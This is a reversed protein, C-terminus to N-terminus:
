RVLGTLKTEPRIDPSKKIYEPYKAGPILPGQPATLSERTVGAPMLCCWDKTSEDQMCPFPGNSNEFGCTWKDKNALMYQQSRQITLAQAYGRGFVIPNEYAKKLGPGYLKSGYGYGASAGTISADNLMVAGVSIVVIALIGVIVHNEM